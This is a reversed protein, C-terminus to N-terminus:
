TMDKVTKAIDFGTVSFCVIILGVVGLLRLCTRKGLKSLLLAPWFYVQFVGLVAGNLDVILDIKQITTAIFVSVVLYVVTLTFYVKRPFKPSRWNCALDYGLLDAFCMRGAFHLLPYSVICKLALCVRAVQVDVTDPLNFAIIDANVDSGYALYGLVGLSGYLITCLILGLAGVGDVRAQTRNKLKSVVPIFVHHCQLSFTYLAFAAGLNFDFAAMNLPKTPGEADVKDISHYMVVAVLYFQSVVGFTSTYSLFTIDPMLMLPFVIGGTILIIVTRTLWSVTIVTEIQDAILVLYSTCTGLLYFTMTVSTGKGAVPGLLAKVAEQYNAANTINGAKGIIRLTSIMLVMAILLSGLGVAIGLKSFENPFLLIGAGLAANTVNMVAGFFGVKSEECRTGGTDYKSALSGRYEDDDTLPKYFDISEDGQINGPSGFPAM